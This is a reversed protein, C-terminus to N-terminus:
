RILRETIFEEAIRKITEQKKEMASPYWGLCHVKQITGIQKGQEDRKISKGTYTKNVMSM